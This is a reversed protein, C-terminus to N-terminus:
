PRPAGKRTGKGAFDERDAASGPEVLGPHIPPVVALKDAIEGCDMGHDLHPVDCGSQQLSDGAEIAARLAESLFYVISELHGEDVTSLLGM